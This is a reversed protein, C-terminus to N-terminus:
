FRYLLGAGATLIKRHNDTQPVHYTIRGLISLSHSIRVDADTGVHFGWVTERADRFAEFEAPASEPRFRYLGVGAFLGSTWASERFEYSASVLGYDVRTKLDPATVSTGVPLAVTRGAFYGKTKLTGLTGRLVFYDETRYQVWLNADLDGFHDIKFEHDVANVAGVSAGVGVPSMGATAALAPRVGVLFGAILLARAGRRPVKAIRRM